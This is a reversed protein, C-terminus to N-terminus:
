ARSILKGQAFDSVLNLADRVQDDDVICYRLFVSRTKWGGIEMITKEPVGAMLANRAFSRRADHPVLTPKGIARAARRWAGYLWKLQRGNRHFVHDGNRKLWRRKLVAHVVHGLPIRRPSKNKSRRAPLQLTGEVLDVEGWTMECVERLRWGLFYLLQVVDCADPDLVELAKSFVKFEKPTIFGTRVNDANAFKAIHPKRPLLERQVALNFGRLLLGLEHNITQRGVHEKLRALKYDDIVAAKVSQADMDGLLRVIPKHHHWATKLSAKENLEYHNRVLEILERVTM